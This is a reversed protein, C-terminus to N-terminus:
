IKKILFKFWRFIKLISGLIVWWRQNDRCGIYAFKLKLCLLQM